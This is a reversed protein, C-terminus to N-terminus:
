PELSWLSRSGDGIPDDAMRGVYRIYEEPKWNYLPAIAVRWNQGATKRSLGSKLDTGYALTAARYHKSLSLRSAVFDIAERRSKFAPYVNGADEKPQCWLVFKGHGAAIKDGPWKFALINNSKIAIRTTGFGSEVITMAALAPAPVGWKREAEIAASSVDDVFALRDAKSPIRIPNYCWYGIGPRDLEDGIAVTTYIAALLAFSFLAATRMM